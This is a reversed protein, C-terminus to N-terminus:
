RFLIKFVYLISMTRVSLSSNAMPKLDADIAVVLPGEEDDFTEELVDVTKCLELDEDDRHITGILYKSDTVDATDDVTDQTVTTETM